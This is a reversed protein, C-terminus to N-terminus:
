ENCGIRLSSMLASNRWTDLLSLSVLAVEAMFIRPLSPPRSDRKKWRKSM